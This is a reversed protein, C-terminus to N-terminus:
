NIMLVLANLRERIDRECQARGSYGLAKSLVHWSRNFFLKDIL